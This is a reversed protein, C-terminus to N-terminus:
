YKRTDDFAGPSGVLFPISIGAAVNLRNALPLPENPDPPDQIMQFIVPLFADMGTNNAM